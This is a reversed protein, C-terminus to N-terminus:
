RVQVAAAASPPACVDPHLIGALMEVGDVLRGSPRVIYANADVAWVPVTPPLLHMVSEAQTAAAGTGFGCPAVIIVDPTAAAIAEWSTEFSRAGSQSLVPQGGAATVVDPVWHGSLFPPDVWELVFVRPAARGDVLTRVAALRDRLLAVLQEGRPAVGCAAAVDVISDFVQDLTMPDMSIVTATCGLVDLAADVQGSPVACVRCLDQTLIVDPNITRLLDTHLEYLNGSAELQEHVADDIDGPSMAATDMGGVVIAASERASPPHDCEFTVGVLDAGLGLEYVIETASPLLSAIKM